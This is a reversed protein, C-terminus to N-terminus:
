LQVYILLGRVFPLSPSLLGNYRLFNLCRFCVSFFFRGLFEPRFLENEAKRYLSHQVTEWVRVTPFFLTQYM